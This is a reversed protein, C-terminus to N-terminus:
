TPNMSHRVCGTLLRWLRPLFPKQPAQPAVDCMAKYIGECHQLHHEARRGAHVMAPTPKEPVTKWDAENLM